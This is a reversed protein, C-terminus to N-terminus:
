RGLLTPTNLLACETTLFTEGSKGPFGSRSESKQPLGYGWSCSWGHLGPCHGPAENESVPIPIETSESFGPSGRGVSKVNGIAM